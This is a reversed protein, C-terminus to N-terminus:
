LWYVVKGTKSYLQCQSLIDTNVRVQSMSYHRKEGMTAELPFNSSTLFPM